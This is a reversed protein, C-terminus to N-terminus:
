LIQNWDILSGFCGDSSSTRSSGGLGGTTFPQPGFERTGDTRLIAVVGMM